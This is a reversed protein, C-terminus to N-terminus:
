PDIFGSLNCYQPYNPPLGLIAHNHGACCLTFANPRTASQFGSSYSDTGVAPCIPTHKLYSPTLVSLNKPYICPEGTSYMECATALAKLNEKCGVLENQARRHSL